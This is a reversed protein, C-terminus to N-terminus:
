WLALTIQTGCIPVIKILCFGAFFHFQENLTLSFFLIKGRVTSRSLNAKECNEKSRRESAEALTRSTRSHWGIHPHISALPHPTYRRRIGPFPLRVPDWRLNQSGILFWLQWFWHLFPMWECLRLEIFVKPKISALMGQAWREYLSSPWTVRLSLSLTYIM